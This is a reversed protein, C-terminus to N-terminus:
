KNKKKKPKKDKLIQKVVADVNPTPPKAVPNVMGFAEVGYESLIYGVLHERAISKRVNLDAILMQCGQEIMDLWEDTVVPKEGLTEMRNLIYPNLRNKIESSLRKAHSLVDEPVFDKFAEKVEHPIALDEPKDFNFKQM